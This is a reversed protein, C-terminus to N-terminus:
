RKSGSHLSRIDFIRLNKMTGKTVDQYKQLFKPLSDIGTEANIWAFYYDIEFDQLQKQLEDDTIGKKATGFYRCELYFSLYFPLNFKNHSATNADTIKYQDKLTQSLVFIHKGTNVHRALNLTPTTVFCLSYLVLALQRQRPTLTTTKFWDTLLHAGMLLLLVNLSWFFREEVYSILLYGIPYILIVSLPFIWKMESIANRIPLCRILYVYIIATSLPSFFLTALMLGFNTSMLVFQYRLNKMSELPSWPRGSHLSPNEWAGYATENPPPVFGNPGCLEGLSNPGVLEHVYRGSTGIMLENFENSLVAIWFGSIVVCLACGLILNKITGKKHVHEKSRLYHFGNMLFFHVVFFPLAYHKCLYAIGGLAGCVVGNKTSAPYDAGFIITFYFTLICLLLLDPTILIFSFYLMIPILSFLITKRISQSIEFRFSLLYIGAITLAGVILYLIKVAVLPQLGVAFLPALLWSFLPGWHGTFANKFDGNLYKFAISIYSTADPTFKYLYYRYLALGLVLYIALVWMLSVKARNTFNHQKM